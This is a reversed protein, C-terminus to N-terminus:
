VSMTPIRMWASEALLKTALQLDGKGLRRIVHRFLRKAEHPYADAFEAWYEPSGIANIDVLRFAPGEVSPQGPKWSLVDVWQERTSANQANHTDAHEPLLNLRNWVSCLMYDRKEVVKHYVPIHLVPLYVTKIYRIQLNQPSFQYAGGEQPFFTVMLLAALGICSINYLFQKM